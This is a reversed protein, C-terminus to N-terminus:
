LEVDSLNYLLEKQEKSLNKPLYLKFSVFHDTGFLGGGKNTYIFNSTNGEPLAIEKEGTLTRIKTIGGVIAKFINLPEESILANGKIKFFANSVVSTKIVLDIGKYFSKIFFSNYYSSIALTFSEEKKERIIGHGRCIKCSNRLIVSCTCPVDIFLNLVKTVNGQMAEEISVDLSVIKQRFIPENITRFMDSFIKNFSNFTNESSVGHNKLLFDYAEQIKLFDEKTDPNIDPHYKLALKKYAKKIDEISSNSSVGLIKYYDM